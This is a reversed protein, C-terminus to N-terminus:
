KTADPVYYYPNIDQVLYKGDSTKELKLIYKSTYTLSLGDKNNAADGATVNDVWKVTVLGRYYKDGSAPGYVEFQLGSSDSSLTYEGNLGNMTANTKNKSVLTALASQDSNGWAKMFNVVTDKADNTVQDDTEGSGPAKPKNLDSSAAMTPESVMTPSNQDISFTDEKDNYYVGVNFYIWKYEINDSANALVPQGELNRYVLAGVVFNATNKDFSTEKYIFPGAKISQTINGNSAPINASVSNQNTSDFKTGNYFNALMATAASDGSVPIYAEIFAEAISSGSEMPFGTQGVTTMAIQQVEGQSLTKPPILANKAGLLCFIVMVSIFVYRWIRAQSESLAGGSKLESKNNRDYKQRKKKGDNNDNDVPAPATYPQPIPQSAAAYAQQPTANGFMSAMNPNAAPMATQQMQNSYQQQAVPEQYAATNDANYETYAGDPTGDDFEFEPAPEPQQVPPAPQRHPQPRGARSLRGGSQQSDAGGHHPLQMSKQSSTNRNPLAM